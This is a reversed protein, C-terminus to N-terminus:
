QMISVQIGRYRFDIHIYVYIYQEGYAGRKWKRNWKIKGKQTIAVRLRWTPSQTSLKELKPIWVWLKDTRDCSSRVISVQILFHGLLLFRGNLHERFGASWAESTLASTHSPSRNRGTMLPLCDAFIVYCTM